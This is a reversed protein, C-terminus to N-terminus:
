QPPHFYLSFHLLSPFIAATIKTVILKSSGLIFFHSILSFFLFYPAFAWLPAGPPTHIFFLFYLLIVFALLFFPSHFNILIFKTDCQSVDFFTAFFVRLLDFPTFEGGGGDPVSKYIIESCIKNKLQFSIFFFIGHM